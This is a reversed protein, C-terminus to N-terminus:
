LSRQSALPDGALARVRPFVRISTTPMDSRHQFDPPVIFLGYPEYRIGANVTLGPRVKWTDGFYWGTQTGRRQEYEGSNQTFFSFRGLLFDARDFGEDDGFGTVHGDFEFQGSSHFQTNNNFRKRVANFGFVLTHNGKNMAWDHQLEFSGRGFRIPHLARNFSVGSGVM